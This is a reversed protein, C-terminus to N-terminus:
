EPLEQHEIWQREFEELDHVVVVRSPVSPRSALARGGIVLQVGDGLRTCLARVEREIVARPLAVLSVFAARARSQRAARATEAAPLSPGLYVIRWGHLAALLGAALAGFEHQEGPPTTCVAVPAGRHAYARMMAALQGRILATAAHEHAVALKGKEWRDGIAELLPTVVELLFARPELVLSAQGLLWEAEPLNMAEVATLFRSRVVPATEATVNRRHRALTQRLAATGVGALRGISHGQELLAKILRLRTVDRETYLREGGSSRGPELLKYRREWIRLAHASIDTLRAVTGIRYQAEKM